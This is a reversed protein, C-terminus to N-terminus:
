LSTFPLPPSLVNLRFLIDAFLHRSVIVPDPSNTHEPAFSMPVSWDRPAVSPVGSRTVSLESVRTWVPPAANVSVCLPPAPPMSNVWDALPLATVPTVLPMRAVFLFPPAIEILTLPATVPPLSYPIRASFSALPAPIAMVAAATVPPEAAIMAEALPEPATETLAVPVTFPVLPSPISALVPLPFRVTAAAVAVPRSAPILAVALPLPLTEIEADPMTVPVPAFPLPISAEADPPFTVTEAAVTVPPAVPILTLALPDPLTEIEADPM